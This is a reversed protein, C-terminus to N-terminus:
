IEIGQSTNNADLRCIFRVEETIATLTIDVSLM